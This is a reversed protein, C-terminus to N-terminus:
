KQVTQYVVCLKGDDRRGPLHVGQRLTKILEDLFAGDSTLRFLPSDEMVADINDAIGHCHWCRPPYSHVLPPLASQCICTSKIRSLRLRRLEELWGSVITATRLPCKCNRTWATTVAVVGGLGVLIHLLVLQNGARLM